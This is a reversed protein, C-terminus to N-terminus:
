QALGGNRSWRQFVAIQSKVDEAAIRVRVGNSRPDDGYLEITVSGDENFGCAIGDVEIIQTETERKGRKVLVIESKDIM